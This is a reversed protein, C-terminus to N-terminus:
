FQPGTFRAVRYIPARYIPTKSYLEFVRVKKHLFGTFACALKVDANVAAELAPDTLTKRTLHLADECAECLPSVSAVELGTTIVADPPINKVSVQQMYSQYSDM